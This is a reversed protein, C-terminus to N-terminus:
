IAKLIWEQLKDPCKSFLYAFFGKAGTLPAPGDHHEFSDSTNMDDLMDDISSPSNSSQEEEQVAIPILLAKLLKISEEFRMKYTKKIGSKKLMLTYVSFQQNQENVLEEKIAFQDFSSLDPPTGMLASSALAQNHMYAISKPDQTAIADFLDIPFGAYLTKSTVTDQVHL